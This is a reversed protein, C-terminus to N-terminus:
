STVGTALLNFISGNVLGRTAYNMEQYTVNIITEDDRHTIVEVSEVGDILTLDSLVQPQDELPITMGWRSTTFEMIDSGRM